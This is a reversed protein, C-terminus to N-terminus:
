SCTVSFLHPEYQLKSGAIELASCLASGDVIKANEAFSGKGSRGLNERFSLETKSCAVSCLFPEYLHESGTREPASCISGKDVIKAKETFSM